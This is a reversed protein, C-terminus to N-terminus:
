HSVAPAADPQVARPRVVADAFPRAQTPPWAVLGRLGTFWVTIAHHVLVAGVAAAPSYGYLVLAGALGSDLVGLGGPVPILMSLNGFFCAVALALVALSHGTTRCAVWLAATDM